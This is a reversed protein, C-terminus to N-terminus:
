DESGFDDSEQDQSMEIEFHIRLKRFKATLSRKVKIPRETAIVIDRLNPLREKWLRPSGRFMANLDNSDRPRQLVLRELSPPLIDVPTKGKVFLSCDLAAHRLVKFDQLSPTYPREDIEEEEAEAAIDICTLEELTQFAYKRLALICAIPNYYDFDIIEVNSYEYVFIKLGRTGRLLQDMTSSDISSAEFYLEEVTPWCGDQDGLDSNDDVRGSIYKGYIKRLRPVKLFFCLPRLSGGEEDKEGFIRIEELLNLPPQLTTNADLLRDWEGYAFRNEFFGACRTLEMVKINHLFLFALLFPLSYYDNALDDLWSRLSCGHLLPGSDMLSEISSTVNSVVMQAEDLTAAYYRSEDAVQGDKFIGGIKLIKCYDGLTQRHHLLDRLAFAPHVIEDVTDHHCEVYTDDLIVTHYKRKNELYRQRIQKALRLVDKSTLCLNDLDKPHIQDVVRLILENPLKM